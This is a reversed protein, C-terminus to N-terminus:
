ALGYGQCQIAQHLKRRLIHLSPYLPISIRQSCTSAIPLSELNSGMVEITIQTGILLYVIDDTLLLLLLLLLKSNMVACCLLIVSFPSCATTNSDGLFKSSVFPFHAVKSRVIPLAFIAVVTFLLLLCAYM